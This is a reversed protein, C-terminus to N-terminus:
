NSRPINQVDEIIQLCPRLHVILVDVSSKIFLNRGELVVRLKPASFEILNRLEIVVLRIFYILLYFLCCFVPIYFPDFPKSIEYFFNQRYIM